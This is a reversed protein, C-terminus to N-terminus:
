RKLELKESVLTLGTGHWSAALATGAMRWRNLLATSSGRESTTELKLDGFVM